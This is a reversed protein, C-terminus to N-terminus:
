FLDIKRFVEQFEFNSYYIAHIIFIKLWLGKVKADTILVGKEWDYIYISHDNSDDM